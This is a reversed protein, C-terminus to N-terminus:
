TSPGDVFTVTIGNEAFIRAVELERADETFLENDNANILHDTAKSQRHGYEDKEEFLWEAGVKELAKKSAEDLADPDPTHLMMSDALGCAQGFFGLCCRKGDYCLLSTQRKGGRDWTDRFITFATIKHAADLKDTM